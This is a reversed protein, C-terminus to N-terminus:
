KETAYDSPLVGFEEKFCKYFHSRSKFGVNAIVESVSFQGSKLQIGAKQVRAKKLFEGPTQGTIAKIKQYFGTRSMCMAKCLEDTGFDPDQMYEEALLHIANIFDAERSSVPLDEVEQVHGLGAKYRRHIQERNNLINRIRVELHEVLFPKAIYDDAGQDLGKLRDAIDKKASLLIVPIHCTVVESRLEQLLEIGNMVPMMVDSVVIDPMVDKAKELGAKGNEVAIVHYNESLMEVMFQRMEFHDEVVLITRDDPQADDRREFGVVGETDSVDLFESQRLPERMKQDERLYESNLPLTLTFSSGEGKTSHVSLEGNHFRALSKSLALGIGTGGPSNVSQARYFRDFVHLAEENTLGEGSDSVVIEVQENTNEHVMVEVKGNEPTHKLANSILNYVIKEVKNPDFWMTTAGDSYFRYQIHKRGAHGEFSKFLMKVHDSLNEHYCQLELAENEAKRFELLQDLLRTLYSAQKRVLLLNHKVTDNATFRKLLVDIPGLILSVPTRFEHSINTFFKLKVDHMEKEKVKEFHEMKVKHKLRETNIVVWFVLVVVLLIVISYILYAWPSLWFPPHIVIALQRSEKAWKNFGDGVTFEFVYKGHPVNTYTAFRNSVNGTLWAKDYGKLRYKFVLDDVDDYHIGLMEISFVNQDHQLEISSLFSLAKPMVLQGDVMQGPLVEEYSLQFMGFEPVAMYNNEGIADPSFFSIGGNGGLVMQGNKLRVAAKNFYSSQLGDKESFFKCELTGPDLMNLQNNTSVWLRGKSDELIGKVINNSLGNDKNFHVFGQEDSVYKSLGGGETGIWLQGNTTRIISSIFDERLSSPNDSEFMFHHFTFDEAIQEQGSVTIRYLGNRWTGVWLDQNVPDNYIVSIIKRWFPQPHDVKDSFSLVNQIAGDDSLSFRYLGQRAGVWLSGNDDECFSYINFDQRNILAQSNLQQLKKQGPRWRYLKGNGSIWLSEFRDEYVSLVTHNQLPSLDVDSQIFRQKELDYIALGKNRCAV